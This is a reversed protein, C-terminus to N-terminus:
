MDCMGQCSVALFACARDVCRAVSNAALRFSMNFNVLAEVRERNRSNNSRGGGAAGGGADDDDLASRGITSHLPSIGVVLVKGAREEGILILPLLRKGVWSLHLRLHLHLLHLHPNSPRCTLKQRYLEQRKM